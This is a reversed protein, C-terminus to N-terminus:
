ATAAARRAACQGAMRIAAITAGPRAVNTGAIGFATGHDPSTRVIPLGLTVNVGEDFDLVKIPILAQDHYMCIAADYTARAEAHFMTDAPLPGRADIGAAQLAAIAPAIIAADETGMRGDEGAHPNLAAVALRPAAVGFDRVLAAAAIASRSRILEATLLGPVAALAVHVTIPVVRLHPGALMMVANEPTIGCAEAVFETQGPQNFGIRALRSKAIPGTVLAAAAGQRVLSTAVELARLALAAGADDPQGPTYAAVGVDLVPLAHPFVAAAEDPAAIAVIPITLGRAAAAAAILDRNGVAFFPPLAEADSLAWAAAILEPGVGAPDGLSIALPLSPSLPSNM